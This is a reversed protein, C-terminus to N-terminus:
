ATTAGRRLWGLRQRRRPLPAVAAVERFQRHLRRRSWLWLWLSNASALVWWYALLFFEFRHARGLFFVRYEDLLVLIAVSAAFLVWPAALVQGLVRFVAVPYNRGRLGQWMGFWGLAFYDLVLVSMGAGFVLVMFHATEFRDEVLWCWAQWLRVWPSDTPAPVLACVCGLLLAFDLVLVALLPWLFQRRLARCHGDLIEKVSVPTSLLLELAGSSRDQGFCRSAELGLWLKLLLNFGFATLILTELRGWRNPWALAYWVWVGAALVFSAWINVPKYRYRTLIWAVPNISLWRHRHAVVRRSRGM